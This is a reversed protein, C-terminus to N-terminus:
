QIIEKELQAEALNAYGQWTGTDPLTDIWADVTARPFKEYLREVAKLARDRWFDSNPNVLQRDYERDHGKFNLYNGM